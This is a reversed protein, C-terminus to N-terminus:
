RIGSVVHVLRLVKSPDDNRHSNSNYLKNVFTQEDEQQPRAESSNLTFFVCIFLLMLMM